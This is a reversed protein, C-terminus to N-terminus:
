ILMFPSSTTSLRMAPPARPLFYFTDFELLFNMKTSGKELIGGM